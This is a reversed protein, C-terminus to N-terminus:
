GDFSITLYLVKKPLLFYIKPFIILNNRTKKFIDKAFLAIGFSFLFITADKVYM